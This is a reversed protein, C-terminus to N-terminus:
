KRRNWADRATQSGAGPGIAGCNGCAIYGSVGNPENVRRSGCFPCPRLDPKERWARVQRPDGPTIARWGEDDDAFWWFWMRRHCYVTETSGDSMLAEVDRFDNPPESAPTWGDPIPKEELRCWRHIPEASFVCSGSVVPEVPEKEARPVRTYLRIRKVTINVRESDINSLQVQVGHRYDTDVVTAMLYVAQGPKLENAKRIKM